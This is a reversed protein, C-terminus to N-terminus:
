KLFPNDKMMIEDNFYNYQKSTEELAVIMKKQLTLITLASAYIVNNDTLEKNIGSITIKGDGDDDFVTATISRRKGSINIELELEDPEIRMEIGGKKNKQLFISYRCEPEALIRM